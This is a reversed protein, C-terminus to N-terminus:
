QAICAPVKKLVAALVSVDKDIINKENFSILAIGNEEGDANELLIGKGSLDISGDSISGTKVCPLPISGDLLWCTAKYAKSTTNPTGKLDALDLIYRAESEANFKLTYGKSKAVQSLEFKEARSLKALDMRTDIKLDCAFASSMTLTSLVLCINFFNKM